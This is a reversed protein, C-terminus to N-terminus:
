PFAIFCAETESETVPVTGKGFSMWTVGAAHLYEDLVGGLRNRRRIDLRAPSNTLNRTVLRGAGLGASYPHM